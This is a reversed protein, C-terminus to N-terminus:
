EDACCHYVKRTSSVKEKAQRKEEELQERKVRRIIEGKQHARGEKKLNQAGNEVQTKSDRHTTKKSAM